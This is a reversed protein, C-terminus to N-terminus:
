FNLPPLSPDIRQANSHALVKGVSTLQVHKDNLLNWWERLTKLNKYRDLHEVFEEKPMKESSYLSYIEELADKQESSIPTLAAKLNASSHVHLNSIANKNIVPIKVYNADLSNNVLCEPSLKQNKLLDRAKIHEESDIKIGKSVYGDFREYWFDELLKMGGFSSIRVADLIDLHDLWDPNTPLDDYIIKCFLDDLVVLGDLLNDKIPIFQAVAHMVTLGLLAENSVQDVVEVARSIGARVNRNTGKEFRYLMLESLLDYDTERETSAARKQAEILLLQFAPDAFAQLAHASVMREILNQNFKNSRESGILFAEKSFDQLAIPLKEDIIERVRKEDVGVNLTQIQLQTSEKGAKQIQKDTM